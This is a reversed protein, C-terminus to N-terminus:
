EVFEADDIDSKPSFLRWFLATVVFLLVAGLLSGMVITAIHVTDQENTCAQSHSNTCAPERLTVALM